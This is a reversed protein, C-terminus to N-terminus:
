IARLVRQSRGTLGKRREGTDEILGKEILAKYRATVSSYAKWPFHSRVEDSICGRPGYHRIAEYVLQELNTTDVAEAAEKSTDPDDRRVLKTPDTGFVAEDFLDEQKGM